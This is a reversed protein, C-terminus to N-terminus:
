LMVLSDLMVNTIGRTDAFLQVRDFVRNSLWCRSAAHLRIVVSVMCTSDTHCGLLLCVHM